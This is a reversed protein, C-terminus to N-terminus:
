DPLPAPRHDGLLTLLPDIYSRGIPLVTNVPAELRLEYDRSTRRRIERIKRANVLHNRHVRLFGHPAFADALEGLTRVDPLRKKGRFRLFSDGGEAEIWYVDAPDLVRRVDPTTHVVFRDLLIATM